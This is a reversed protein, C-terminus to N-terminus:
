FYNELHMFFIVINIRHVNLYELLRIIIKRALSLVVHYGFVIVSVPLRDAVSPITKHISGM